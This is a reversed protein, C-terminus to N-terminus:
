PRIRELISQADFWLGVMEANPYQNHIRNLATVIQQKQAKDSVPNGACDFHAVVAIQSSGHKDVSVELNALVFPTSPTDSALHKVMGATTVTDLHRV